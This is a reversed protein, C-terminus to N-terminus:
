WETPNKRLNQRNLTDLDEPLREHIIERWNKPLNQPIVVSPTVGIYKYNRNGLLAKATAKAVAVGQEYPRQCSLGRVFRRSALYTAIEVDLDCTVVAVHDLRLEELARIAELAPRDWSVYIGDIEPHNKLLHQCEEYAKEIALFNRIEVIEVQPYNERLIHEAVTDRLHTGYFPMGHKLMGVKAQPRDRFVEGLLVGANYGNEQENVSVCSAYDAKDFGLPVNSIFIIPISKALEKFKRATAKDDTPIAIVADPKQIRISELQTIQLSPDFHADTLSVVKVGLKRLTERIGAEHLAAWATGGHHFSIAVRFEAIKLRTIEHESFDIEDPSIAGEGFPGKGIIRTSKRISLEVPLLHAKGSHHAHGNLQSVLLEVAIEALAKLDQKLVTLPPSFVECWEEDGFGVVSVDQPCDLGLQELAQLLLLTLQNGGAVVGSPSERVIGAKIEEVGQRNGLDVPILPMSQPDLHYEELARRFGVLRDESFSSTRKKTLLAIREHGSKLLHLTGIYIGQQMDSYVRDGSWSAPGRGLLVTPLRVSELFSYDTEGELSPFLLVGAVSKDTALHDLTHRETRPDSKTDYVRLSYGRGTLSASLVAALSTMSPSTFSPVLLAIESAQGTRLGRVKTQLKERYGTEDIIANVRAVLEPSVYRTQNIVHSVTAISVGAQVAISKINSSM